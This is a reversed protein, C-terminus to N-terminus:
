KTPKTASPDLPPLITPTVFVLLDDGPPEDDPVPLSYVMTEGDPVTRTLDQVVASKPATFPPPTLRNELTLTVTRDSNIRPLVLFGMDQDTASLRFATTTNATSVIAPSAFTAGQAKLSTLLQAAVNGYAFKINGPVISFNVSFESVQAETTRALVFKIQVRSQAVDFIQTMRQIRAFGLRTAVVTLANGPVDASVQQVGDPLLSPDQDWPLKRLIDTPRVHHLVLTQTQISGPPTSLPHEVAPAASPTPVPAPAVPLPAAPLPTTSRAHTATLTLSAALAALAATKLANPPTMM